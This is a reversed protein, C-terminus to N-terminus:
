IMRRPVSMLPRAPRTEAHETAVCRRLAPIRTEHRAVEPLSALCADASQRLSDDHGLRASEADRIVVGPAVASVELVAVVATREM